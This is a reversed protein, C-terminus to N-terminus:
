SHLGDLLWRWTEDMTARVPPPRVPGAPMRVPTGRYAAALGRFAEGAPKVQQDVTLLGLTYEVPPFELSRRVDHSCWWTFWSIGGAVAAVTAEHLFRPVDAAAMWEPSAGYEQLWVPKAADGAYSRVLAAMGAALQVCPPDLPRGHELAGTFLIYAHIPVIPQTTALARPGFSAPKFWPQHDVGNVHVRGPAARNVYPLLDAM